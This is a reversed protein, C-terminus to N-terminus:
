QKHTKFIGSIGIKKSPRGCPGRFCGVIVNLEALGLGVWIQVAGLPALHGALPM